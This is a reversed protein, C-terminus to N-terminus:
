VSVGVTAMLREAAGRYLDTLVDRPLNLGTLKPAAMDDYRDPDVMKLDPDAIPSEGEYSTEFMTRLAYYRSAYLDFATEPSNALDAMPHAPPGEKPAMHEDTTVIDSGFILRGRWKTFFDVVESRPQRSLERVVWKTASTDLYLNAHRTLMEDLFRLDEPWGGMHAAVWPMPFRDLMVILGRYHSRKSGYKQQDAYKTAFWTDPDAVHVMMMMGLSQALEAARVRWPADFEIIDKGTDGPFFERMRPANWLKVIRAGFDDHYAQIDALFDDQFAQARDKARFDPFAIFRVFEGLAARIAPADARRGMSFVRSVGFLAAVERYILAARAGGIHAHFDVIQVPPVPLSAAALRYDLAFRNAAVRARRPSVAVPAEITPATSPSRVPDHNAM